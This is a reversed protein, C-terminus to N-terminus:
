TRKRVFGSLSAILLPWMIWHLAVMLMAYVRWLAGSPQVDSKVGMSIIPIHLQAAFMAAENVDWTLPHVVPNPDAASPSIDLQLRRADQFLLLSVLYFMLMALVVRQSTTGYLITRDLFWDFGRRFTGKTFTRDKRRMAVHVQDAGDDDGTDRLANEVALYNSKEFPRSRDLVALYGPERRDARSGASTRDELNVLREVKMSRLDVSDPLPVLIELRGLKARELVVRAEGAAPAQIAKLNKGSFVLETIDAGELHLAGGIRAFRKPDNSHFSVAGKVVADRLVVDGGTELATLDMDGVMDLMECDVSGARTPSSGIASCTIKSRVSADRLDLMGGISTGVLELGGSIRARQLRVDGAISSPSQRCEEVFAAHREPTIAVAGFSTLQNEIIQDPAEISHFTLRGSIQAGTFHLGKAITAGLIAVDKGVTLAEGNVSGGISTRVLRYQDHSMASYALYLGRDITTSAFSVDGHAIAGGLEVAGVHLSSLDLRGTVETVFGGMPVAMLTQAITANQLMVDGEILAGSIDLDGGVHLGLMWLRGVTCRHGPAEQAARLLLSQEITTAQLRMGGEITAGEFVAPGRITAGNATVQGRIIVPKNPDPSNSCFLGGGLTAGDCVLNVAIETDALVVRNDIRAGMLSMGGDLRSASVEVQGSIRANEAVLWWSLRCEVCRLNGSVTASTLFIGGVATVKYFIVDNAIQAGIINILGSVSATCELTGRVQVNAGVVNGDCRFQKGDFARILLNGGIQASAITLDGHIRTGSIEILGKIRAVLFWAGGRLLSRIGRSPRCIVNGGVNAAQLSLQRHVIAGVLRIDGHVEAGSLDLTGEVRFPTPKATSSLRTTTDTAIERVSVQRLALDGNIITRDLRLDTRIAAFSASVSGGMVQADIMSFAGEVRVGDFDAVVSPPIAALPVAAILQKQWKRISLRRRRRQGIKRRREEKDAPSGRRTRLRRTGVTLANVIAQLEAVSPSIAVRVTGVIVRDLRLTGDIRAESLILREKFACGSLDVGGDFRAQALDVTGTFTAERVLFPGEIHAARLDVPGDIRYGTWDHDGGARVAKAFAAGTVERRGIPLKPDPAPLSTSTLDASM